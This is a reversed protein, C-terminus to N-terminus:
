GSAEVLRAAVAKLMSLSITPEEELLGLLDDRRIALCRMDSAAMVRASRPAETLVSLEGFFEGPGREFVSGDPVTVRATGDLVVFCGAAPQGHEIFVHGSRVDFETAIEAVRVLGGDDVSSFIPVSRLASLHQESM